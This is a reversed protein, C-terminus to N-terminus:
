EASVASGTTTAPKASRAGSRHLRGAFLRAPWGRPRECEVGCCHVGTGPLLERGGPLIDYGRTSAFTGCVCRGDICIGDFCPKNCAGCHNANTKTDVCVGNCVTGPAGVRLHRRLEGDAPLMARQPHVPRRLAQLRQQLQLRLYLRRRLDVHRQPGHPLRLRLLRRRHLPPERVRRCQHLGRREGQGGSLRQHPQWRRKRRLLTGGRACDQTGACTTLCAGDRCAYPSCEDVSEACVGAGDCAFSVADGDSCATTGCAVTSGPYVCATQDVGDCVGACAGTGACAQRGGRPAGGAPIAACTGVFGAVDCAECQGSCAGDCCVGDVCFGSQCEDRGACPQGAVKDATCVGGM